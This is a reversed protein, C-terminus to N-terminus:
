KKIISGFPATDNFIEKNTSSYWDPFKKWINECFKQNKIGIDIGQKSQKRLKLCKEATELDPMLIPLNPIKVGKRKLATIVPKTFIYTQDDSFDYKNQESDNLFHALEQCKSCDHSDLGETIGHICTLFNWGM